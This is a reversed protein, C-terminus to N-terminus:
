RGVLEKRMALDINRYRAAGWIYFNEKVNRMYKYFPIYATNHITFICPCDDIAMKELQRYLTVREPSDQLIVAKKFLEDFTPNAYNANNPGPSGNPGYFVQLFSEGDPYDAVWGMGYMQASKNKVKELLTPWDMYDAKVTVGIKEMERQFFQTHQRSASDSSGVALTVIIKGGAIKEAEVMLEKARDLNYECWPNKMATDYEKFCPPFIGKAPIGRGNTFVRIFTERNFACSMARRLPLNKGVVPDAMNFAYWFTSPDEQIRMTIGKKQMQPTLTKQATVAQAFFDKPIGSSDLKGQMFLLWMPQDEEIIQMHIGDVLPLRKGADDLLGAERDGADGETPYRVDRFNPNRVFFIDNGRRPKMMFAGTGVIVDKFRDGYYDVSEKAVPATPLHGLVYILQPWRDTLTIQLTFDDLAKLGAIPKSYDVDSAKACTTTYKNFDDLGVIRGALIPWNVSVNKADALRKWAYIFDNAVLKRGKGNPFCPDDFFTVDNRISITYTLQDDSIKPLAAALNPEIEYPRKLYHYTYLCEYGQSAVASSTTDSVTMPDLGRYKAGLVSEIIKESASSQSTAPASTAPATTTPTNSKGCGFSVLTGALTAIAVIPGILLRNRNSPSSNKTM